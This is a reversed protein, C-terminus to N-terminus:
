CDGNMCKYCMRIGSEFTRGWLDSEWEFIYIYIYIYIYIHERACPYMLMCTCARLRM